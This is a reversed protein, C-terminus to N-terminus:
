MGESDEDDSLDDYPLVDEQEETPEDLLHILDYDSIGAIASPSSSAQPHFANLAVDGLYSGTKNAIGHKRLIRDLDRRLKLELARQELLLSAMREAMDATKTEEVERVAESTVVEKVAEIHQRAYQMFQGASYMYFSQDSKKLMEAILEPRPGVTRRKVKHWWDKKQEDTVLIVPKGTEKAKDVAQYWLILDGYKKLDDKDSDAYGPPVKRAYRDKGDKYIAQLRDDDYPSGVRGDFMKDVADRIPDIDFSISHAERKALLEKRVRKCWKVLRNSYEEVDLFRHRPYELKLANATAVAKGELLDAIGEYYSMHKAIEACRNDQFELAAQHPLWIRDSFHRFLELLENATKDSYRYLSILVNADLAFTCQQWMKKFQEQTPRYYEPFAAKM